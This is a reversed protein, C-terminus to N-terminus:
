GGVTARAVSAAGQASIAQGVLAAETVSMRRGDLLSVGTMVDTLVSLGPDSVTVGPAKVSEAYPNATTKALRGVVSTDVYSSAFSAFKWHVETPLRRRQEDRIYTRYSVMLPETQESHQPVTAMAIRCGGQMSEFGARSMLAEGELDFFQGPPFPAMLPSIAEADGTSTSPTGITIMDPAVSSAGVHTIRVGLPIQSQLVEIGALPHAYIAGADDVTALSVLQAAHGPLIAKWTEPASLAQHVLAMADVAPALPAPKDGWTIPGVDKDFTPLFWVDVTIHGKLSFPRTGELEGSLVVSAITCGFLDVEAGVELRVKFAFRPSWIFIMDLKVWARAAIVKFDASLRGEVGLQVSGATIAFYIKVTFIIPGRVKGNADRGGPSFDLTVRSLEGLKPKSGILKEYETHFGGVSFEFITEGSWRIYMGLEGSVDFGAIKSGKMTAFMEFHDETIAAFVEANIDVVALKAHPVQVVLAGVIAIKPDPLAIIVGVKLRVFKAESGWGIEAIPGIVFGGERPPFVKAVQDLLTPAEKVPDDPFLMKDLVHERMGARLAELDFGRDLALLGGIGNLTFGLGLEIAKPFRIGIVLVLSFPDPSLIVIATVGVGVVQLQVTGGFEVRTIEEGGVKYTREVRQIFGGGKVAGADIRLGVADPWRPTVPLAEFMVHHDVVGNMDVIFGSGVVQMGVVDGIKGAISTTVEFGRAERTTKDRLIGLALERLEVGPFSFRVPLVAKEGGRGDGLYLGQATDLSIATVTETKPDSSGPMITKLMKDNTIGPQLLTRLRLGLIAIDPAYYKDDRLIFSKKEEETPNAMERESFQLFAEFSIQELAIAGFSHSGSKAAHAALVFKGDDRKLELTRGLDGVLDDIGLVAKGFSNLLSSAASGLDKFPQAWPNWLKMLDTRIQEDVDGNAKKALERAIIAYAEDAAALATGIRVGVRAATDANFDDKKLDDASESVMKAILDTQSKIQEGIKEALPAIGDTIDKKLEGFKAKIEDSSFSTLSGLFTGTDKWAEEVQDGLRTNLFAEIGQLFGTGIDTM